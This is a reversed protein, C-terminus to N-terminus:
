GGHLLRQETRADGADRDGAAAAVAALTVQHGHAPAGLEHELEVFLYLDLHGARLREDLRRDLRNEGAGAGARHAVALDEHLREVADDPDPGALPVVGRQCRHRRGLDLLMRQLEGFLVLGLTPARRTGSGIGRGAAFSGARIDSANRVSPPRNRLLQCSGRIRRLTPRSKRPFAMPRKRTSVSIVRHNRGWTRSACAAAGAAGSGIAETLAILVTHVRTAANRTKQMCTPKTMSSAPKARERSATLMRTSPMASVQMQPTVNQSQPKANMNSGPVGNM